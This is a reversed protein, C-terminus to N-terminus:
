ALLYPGDGQLVITRARDAQAIAIEATKLDYLYVALRCGEVMDNESSLRSAVWESEIPWVTVMQKEHPVGADSSEVLTAWYARCVSLYRARTTETSLM